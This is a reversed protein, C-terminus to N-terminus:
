SQVSKRWRRVLAFVGIGIWAANVGVSPMAHYYLSNVVLLIGAVINMAQYFISDGELRKISVLVYAVLFLVVGIWGFIDIWLNINM